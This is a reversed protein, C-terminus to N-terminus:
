PADEWSLASARLVDSRRALVRLAAIEDEPYCHYDIPVVKLGVASLLDCFKELESEKMRSVTSESVGMFGAAVAQGVGALAKLIVTLNKRSRESSQSSVSGM